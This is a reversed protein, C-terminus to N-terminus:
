IYLSSSSFVGHRHRYFALPHGVIETPLRVCGSATGGDFSRVVDAFARNVHTYLGGRSEGVGDSEFRLWWHLYPFGWKGKRKRWTEDEQVCCIESFDLVSSYFFTCFFAANHKSCALWVSSSRHQFVQVIMMKPKRMLHKNMFRRKGSTQKSSRKSNPIMNSDFKSRHDRSTDEWSSYSGVMQQYCSCVGVPCAKIKFSGRRTKMAAPHRCHQRIVLDMQKVLLYGTCLEVQYYLNGYDQQSDVAAIWQRCSKGRM